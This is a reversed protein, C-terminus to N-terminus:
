WSTRDPFNEPLWYGIGRNARIDYGKNRMSWVIHGIPSYMNNTGYARDFLLWLDNETLPKTANGLITILILENFSLEKAMGEPIEIRGM